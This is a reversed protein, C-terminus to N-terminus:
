LDEYTYTDPNIEAIFRSPFSFNANYSAVFAPYTIYLYEKARSSAVYFLRREEEMEELQGAQRSPFLGELAHPVFVAQWELGKASHITSLVLPQDESEEEDPVPSGALSKSPPELAFDSLFSELSQYRQALQILIDIDNLRIKYDIDKAELIPAYHSKITELKEPISKGEESAQDLTTELKQLEEYYKKGSHENFAIQRNKENIRKIIQNATTNGIGPLLKLIRNWSIADDPNYLVKMYAMLDKVHAREHFRFGGVVMYPIDRKNLESQIYRNHWDARNLVAIDNLPVDKERLELIKDVIFSAEEEQNHVRKIVPLHPRDINSYLQKKYGIKAHEIVDNTFQLLPQSSRYNQEIKVVRCNPYTEPFRLINEYNAGRFAYISQSDDGVVMINQHKEAIYDIIEKQIVNTDQFEDVMVYTYNDQIKKRFEPNDRLQDRFFEMLDDFDFTHTAKKYRMFGQYILELDKIYPAVEEYHTEVLDRITTNKNRAASIIKQIRRKRPFKKNSKDYKLQSRILDIIDEADATDIITFKPHINLMSAYKRLVFSAFSHFTGGTIHTPQSSHLLEEVRSTMESAAKRTFTLLLIQQPDIQNEIMFSVRHVIVRTKGSGAGAIVLLPGQLTTAALLQSTNLQNPYDITYNEFDIDPQQPRAKKQEIAEAIQHLERINEETGEPIEIEPYDDITLENPHYEPTEPSEDEEEKYLLSDIFDDLLKEKEELDGTQENNQNKHFSVIRGEQDESRQNSNDNSHDNYRDKNPM